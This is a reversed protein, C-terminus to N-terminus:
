DVDPAPPDFTAAVPSVRRHPRGKEPDGTVTNTRQFYPQTNQNQGPPWAASPSPTQPARLLPLRAPWAPLCIGDATYKWFWNATQHGLAGQRPEPIWHAHVAHLHSIVFPCLGKQALRACLLSVDSAQGSM